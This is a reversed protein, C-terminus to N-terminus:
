KPVHYFPISNGGKRDMERASGYYAFSFATATQPIQFSKDFLFKEKPHAAVPDVLIETKIVSLNSDLFLIHVYFLDLVHYIEAYQDALTIQGNIQFIQNSESYGYAISLDDTEWQDKAVSGPLPIVLEPEAHKGLYRTSTSQCGVLLLLLLTLFALGTNFLAKCMIIPGKNLYITDAVNITEEFM